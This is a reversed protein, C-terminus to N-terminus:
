TIVSLSQKWAETSAPLKLITSKSLEDVYETYTAIPDQPVKTLCITVKNVDSPMRLVGVWAFRSSLRKMVQDMAAESRTLVNVVLVGNTRTLTAAISELLEAGLLKPHPAQLTDKSLLDLEAQETGIGELVNNIDIIYCAIDQKRSSVYGIYDVADGSIHVLKTEEKIPDSLKDGDLKVMQSPAYGFYLKSIEVVTDDIDVAHIIRGQFLGQLLIPLTGSGSGLVAITGTRVSLFGMSLLIAALYENPACDRLFVEKGEADATYRIESQVTQPSCSFVMQRVFIKNEKTEESPHGWIDHIVIDGAHISSAVRRPARIATSEGAKLVTVNKTDKIALKLLIDSMNEKIYRMLVQDGFCADFPNVMGKGPRAAESGKGGSSFKLWLIIIRKAGAQCALEENGDSCSYQWFHEHGTPVIIAATSLHADSADLRDYIAAAFCVQNQLDKPYIDFTVRRGPSYSQLESGLYLAGKARRLNKPLSGIEFEESPLNPIDAMRCQKRAQQSKEGSSRVPRRYILFLFQIMHAKNTQSRYLPYIDVYVDKFLLNRVLEAAVYDQALSFIMFVDDKQIYSLTTAIYKKARERAIDVPDGEGISIYADLFAKDLIIKRRGHLEKDIDAIFTGYSDSSVDIQVWNMSGKKDKARMDNLVESCFDLNYMTRFGMSRLKFPLMSNGCGVNIVVSEAPNFVLEAESDFPVKSALSRNFSGLFNDLTGYWDFNRLKPNRYFRSWYDSSRFYSADSPFIDM